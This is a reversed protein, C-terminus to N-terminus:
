NQSRRKQYLNSSELDLRPASEVKNIFVLQKLKNKEVTNPSHNDREKTTNQNTSTQKGFCIGM